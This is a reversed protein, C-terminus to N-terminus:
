EKLFTGICWNRGSIIFWKFLKSCLMENMYQQLM